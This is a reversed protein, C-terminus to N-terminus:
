IPKDLPRLTNAGGHQWHAATFPRQSSVPQVAWGGIPSRCFFWFMVSHTNKWASIQNRSTMDELKRAQLMASGGGRKVSFWGNGVSVRSCCLCGTSQRACALRWKLTPAFVTPPFFSFFFGVTAKSVATRRDVKVYDLRLRALNELGHTCKEVRQHLFLFRCM